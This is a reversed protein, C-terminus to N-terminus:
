LVADSRAFAGNRPPKAAEPTTGPRRTPRRRGPAGGQTAPQPATEPAPKGAEPAPKPKEEPVPLPPIEAGPKLHGFAYVGLRADGVQSTVFLLYEAEFRPDVYKAFYKMCSKDVAISAPLLLFGPAGTFNGFAMLVDGQQNFM